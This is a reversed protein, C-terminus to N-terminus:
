ISLNGAGCTYCPTVGTEAIQLEFSDSQISYILAAVPMTMAIVCIYLTVGLKEGAEVEHIALELVKLSEGAICDNDNNPM